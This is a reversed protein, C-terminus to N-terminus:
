MQTTELLPMITEDMYVYLDRSLYDDLDGLDLTLGMFDELEPLKDKRALYRDLTRQIKEVKTDVTRMRRKLERLVSLRQRKIENITM